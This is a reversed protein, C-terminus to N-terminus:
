RRVARVDGQIKRCHMTLLKKVSESSLNLSLQVVCVTPASIKDLSLCVRVKVGFM